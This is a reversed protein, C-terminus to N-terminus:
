LYKRCTSNHQRLTANFDNKYYMTAKISQYELTTRLEMLIMTEKFYKNKRLWRRVLSLLRLGARDATEDL